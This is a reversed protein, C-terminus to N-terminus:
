GYLIIHEYNSYPEEILVRGLFFCIETLILLLQKTSNNYWIGLISALLLKKISYIGGIRNYNFRVVSYLGVM